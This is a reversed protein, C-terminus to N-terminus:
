NGAQKRKQIEKFLAITEVGTYVFYTFLFLVAFSVIQQKNLVGYIVIVMLCVFLKLGTSAMFRMTFANKNESDLTKTLSNFSLLSFIIFFPLVFYAHQNNYESPMYKNWLFIGATAFVSTILLKIPYQM